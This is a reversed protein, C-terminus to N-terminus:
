SKFYEDLELLAASDAGQRSGFLGSSERRVALESWVGWEGITVVIEEDIRRDVSRYRGAVHRDVSRCNRSNRATDVPLDLSLGVQDHGDGDGVACQGEGAGIGAVIRPDSSDLEDRSLEARREFDSSRSCPLTNLIARDLRHRRGTAVSRRGGAIDKDM